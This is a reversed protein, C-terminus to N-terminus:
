RVVELLEVMSRVVHVRHGLMEAWRMFGQQEASLKGKATKCEVFFVRARSALIIFDPEGPMRGTPLDMRSRLYIWGNAKCHSIIDDHLTAEENVAVAAISEPHYGRKAMLAVYEAQSINPM